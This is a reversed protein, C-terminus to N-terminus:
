KMEFIWVCKLQCSNIFATVAFSGHRYKSIRGLGQFVSGDVNELVIEPIEFLIDNFYSQNMIKNM